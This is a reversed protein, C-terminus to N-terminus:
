LTTNLIPNHFFERSSLPAYLQYVYHNIHDEKFYTKLLGIAELKTRAVEIESLKLKMNAMLQHHTWELSLCESGDLYSWLSFYLSIAVSGVIPQYLSSLLKHDESSLITKSTVIYTDAPMLSKREMNRVVLVLTVCFFHFLSTKKSTKRM